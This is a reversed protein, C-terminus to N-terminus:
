AARRIQTEVLSDILNLAAHWDASTGLIKKTGVERIAFKGDAQKGYQHGKYSEWRIGRVKRVPRRVISLTTM